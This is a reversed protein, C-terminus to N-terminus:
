TQCASVGSQGSVTPGLLPASWPSSLKIDMTQSMVVAKQGANDKMNLRIQGSPPLPAGKEEINARKQVRSM